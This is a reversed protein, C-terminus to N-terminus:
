RHTCHQWMQLFFLTQVFIYIIMIIIKYRYVQIIEKVTFYLSPSRSVLHDCVMVLHAYVMVLHAYVMGLHSYVLALHAYAMVLHAYLHVPTGCPLTKPGNNNRRYVESSKEM